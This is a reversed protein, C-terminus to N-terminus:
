TKLPGVKREQRRIERLYVSDPFPRWIYLCSIKIGHIFELFSEAGIRVGLSIVLSARTRASEGNIIQNRAAAKIIADSISVKRGHHPEHVEAVYRQIL